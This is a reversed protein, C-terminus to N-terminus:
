DSAPCDHVTEEGVNATFPKRCGRCFYIRYQTRDTWQHRFTGVRDAADAPAVQGDKDITVRMAGGTQCPTAGGTELASLSEPPPAPKIRCDIVGVRM